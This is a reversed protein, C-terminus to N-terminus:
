ASWWALRRFSVLLVMLQHADARDHAAGGRVGLRKSKPARKRCLRRDPDQLRQPLRANLEKFQRRAREVVTDPLAGHIVDARVTLTPVRNRRWVLPSEQEESFTAFQNLPVM